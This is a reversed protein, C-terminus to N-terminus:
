SPNVRSWAPIREGAPTLEFLGAWFMSGFPQTVSVVMEDGPEVHFDLFSNKSSVSAKGAQVAAEGEFRLRLGAAPGDWRGHWTHTTASSCFFNAFEVSPQFLTLVQTQRTTPGCRADYSWGHKLMWSWDTAELRVLFARGANFVRNPGVLTEYFPRLEASHASFVYTTAVGSRPMWNEVSLWEHKPELFMRATFHYNIPRAVIVHAPAPYPIAELVGTTEWDFHDRSLTFWFAESFYFGVSQFAAVSVFAVAAARRWRPWPIIEFAYGAALAVFPYAMMMRHTSPYPTDTLLSPAVGITFGAALFCFLRFRRLALLLGFVAVGLVVPPHVAAARVTLWGDQGAPLAFATLTLVTRTWLTELPATTFGPHLFNPMGYAYPPRYHLYPLWALLAVVPIVLCALRRWRRALLVVVLSFPLFTRGCFYDYLLLGQGLSGIGVEIANGTGVMLRALAALLLMEHFVLEGGIAIRGYFISWPLFAVLGAVVLSSSRRWGLSRGVTYALATALVSTLLSYLRIAWRNPGFLPVLQAQFLTTLLLPLGTCGEEFIRDARLMQLSCGLIKPEDENLGAPFDTTYVLRLTLSLSCLLVIWWLADRTEHRLLRWLSAAYAAVIFVTIGQALM